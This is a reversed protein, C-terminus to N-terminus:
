NILFIIVRKNYKIFTYSLILCQFQLSDIHRYLCDLTTIRYQSNYILYYIEKIERLNVPIANHTHIPLYLSKCKNFINIIFLYSIYLSYRFIISTQENNSKDIIKKYEIIKNEVLAKNINIFNSTILAPTVSGNKVYFFDNKKIAKWHLM